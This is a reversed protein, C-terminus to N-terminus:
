LVIQIEEKIFVGPFCGAWGVLHTKVTISQPSNQPGERLREEEARRRGHDCGTGSGGRTQSSAPVQKAALPLQGKGPVPFPLGFSVYGIHTPFPASGEGDKPLQQTQPSLSRLLPSCRRRGARSM